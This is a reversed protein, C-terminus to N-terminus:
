RECARFILNYLDQPGPDIRPRHRLMEDVDVGCLQRVPHEPVGIRHDRQINKFPDIHHARFLATALAAFHRQDQIAQGQV